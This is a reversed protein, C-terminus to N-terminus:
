DLEAERDRQELQPESDHDAHGKERRASGSCPHNM